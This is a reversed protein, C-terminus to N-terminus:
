APIKRILSIRVAEICEREMETLETVVDGALVVFIDALAKAAKQYAASIVLRRSEDEPNKFGM